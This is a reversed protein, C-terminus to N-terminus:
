NRDEIKWEHRLSVAWDRDLFAIDDIIDELDENEAEDNHYMQEWIKLAVEFAVKSLNRDDFNEVLEYGIKKWEYWSPKGGDSPFLNFKLRIVYEDDSSFKTSIQNILKEIDM